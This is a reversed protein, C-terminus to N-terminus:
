LLQDLQGTGESVRNRGPIKHYGLEGAAETFLPAGGAPTLYPEQTHVTVRLPLPCTQQQKTMLDHGVGCGWPSYSM